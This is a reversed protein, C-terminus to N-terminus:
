HVPLGCRAVTCLHLLVGSRPVSKMLFSFLVSKTHAVMAEVETVIGQVCLFMPVTSGKYDGGHGGGGNGDWTCM